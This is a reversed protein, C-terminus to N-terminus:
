RQWNYWLKHGANRVPSAEVGPSVLRLTSSTDPASVIPTVVVAAPSSVVASTGSGVYAGTEPNFSVNNIMNGTFTPEAYTTTTVGNVTTTLQTPTNSFGATGGYGFGATQTVPTLAGSGSSSGVYSQGTSGSTYTVGPAFYGSTGAM